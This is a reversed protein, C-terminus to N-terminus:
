LATNEEETTFAHAERTWSADCRGFLRDVGGDSSPLCLGQSTQM